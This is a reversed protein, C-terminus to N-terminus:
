YPFSFGRYINDLLSVKVAHYMRYFDRKKMYLDRKKM